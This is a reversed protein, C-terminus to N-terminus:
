EASFCIEEHNIVHIQDSVNGLRLQGLQAKVRVPFKLTTLGTCNFGLVRAKILDQSHERLIQGIKVSPLDEEFKAVCLSRCELQSRVSYTDFSRLEYQRLTIPELKLSGTLPSHISVSCDCDLAFSSTSLFFFLLFVMQRM